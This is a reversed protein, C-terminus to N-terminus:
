FGHDGGIALFRNEAFYYTTVYPNSTLATVWGIKKGFFDALEPDQKLEILHFGHPPIAVERKVTEADKERYFRLTARCEVDLHRKPSSHMLYLSPEEQDALIPAWKFSEKKETFAPVFPQMNTCINCPLGGRKFGIDIGVKIRAPISLASLPRAILRGGYPGDKPLYANLPLTRFRDFPAECRALEEIRQLLEGEQTYIELDLAFPAPSYIPYLDISTKYRGGKLPIMLSSSHWAPDKAEWFDSAEDSRSCDYYTHTVIRAAENRLRNGAVLRPFVGELHFDIKCAGPSGDLFTAVDGWDAPHLISLEYPRMAKLDVEFSEKEGQCNYIAGDMKQAKREKPGNIMAIFPEKEGDCLITFGSEPVHRHSNSLADSCNNYTRGATHVISSFAPGYYNVAIAPYPFVLDTASTFEIEITGTFEQKGIFEEVEIRHAKPTSVLFKKEAVVDGSAGRIAIHAKVDGIQRKIQWYGLFILRTSIREGQFIPFLASSRFIPDRKKTRDVTELHSYYSRM